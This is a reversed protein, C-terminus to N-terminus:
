LQRGNSLSPDKELFYDKFDPLEQFKLMSDFFISVLEPANIWTMTDLDLKHCLFSDKQYKLVFGNEIIYYKSKGDNREVLKEDDIECMLVYQQIKNMTSFEETNFTHEGPVAKRIVFEGKNATMRNEYSTSMNEKM